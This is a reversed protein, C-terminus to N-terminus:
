PTTGRSRIPAIHQGVPPHRVSRANSLNRGRILWEDNQYIYDRLGRIWHNAAHSSEGFLAGILKDSLNEKCKLLLLCMLADPTMRHPKLTGGQPGGTQLFPVAFKEVLYYLQQHSVSFFTHMEEDNLLQPLLLRNIYNEWYNNLLYAPTGPDRPGGGAMIRRVDRNNFPHDLAAIIADRQLRNRDDTILDPHPHRLPAPEPGIPVGQAQPGGAPPGPPGGPPGPPGGGPPGPPGGGPQGPPGGGPQGPPGGGPPGPLGGGPPGPPGGGPPGPPGGGPPEPHGGGNPGPPGVVPPDGADPPGPPGQQHGTNTPDPIGASGSTPPCASATACSSGAASHLCCFEEYYNEDSFSSDYDLLASINALPNTPIDVSTYGQQFSSNEDTDETEECTPMAQSLRM